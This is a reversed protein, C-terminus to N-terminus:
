AIDKHFVDDNCMATRQSNHVGATSDKLFLIKITAFILKIDEVFSMRNIYMLDMQLKSLPDTNYRGYVQAFGTLGAKAQLRLVFAPIKKEYEAAIEPREPRPGVITMDGKMINILQPLEDIRSARIIKGVPTIRTDDQAALRAVGDQEANINMSRFKLIEFEKGNRTLRIQKYFVPGGDYVKIAIATILMVPSAVVLALLSCCVDMLRKFAAYEFIPRARNIRMVPISLMQMHQAGAMILENIEPLFYGEINHMVCYQSVVSRLNPNIDIVFVSELGELDMCLTEHNEPNRIYKRIDFRSSFYNIEDLKSLDQEGRYIVATARPKHLRFYLRNACLSWLINWIFQLVVLMLIPVPPLLTNGVIMTLFYFFVDVILNSLTLSYLIEFVRVKGINFAGYTQFLFLTTAAYLLYLLASAPSLVSIKLYEAFNFYWILIFLSVTVICCLWKMAHNVMGIQTKSM